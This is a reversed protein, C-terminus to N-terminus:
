GIGLRDALVLDDLQVIIIGVVFAGGVVVGIIVNIRQLAEGGKVAEEAIRIFKKGSRVPERQVVPDLIRFEIEIYPRANLEGIEVTEVGGLIDLYGMAIQVQRGRSIEGIGKRPRLPKPKIIGPPGARGARGM